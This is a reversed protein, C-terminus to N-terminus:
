VLPVYMGDIGVFHLELLLCALLFLLLLSIKSFGFGINKGHKGEWDRDTERGIQLVVRKTLCEFVLVFVRALGLSFVREWFGTEFFLSLCSVRM